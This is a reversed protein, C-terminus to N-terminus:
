ALRQNIEDLRRDREAASSATLTIHGLKRGPRESKGYDHMGEFEGSPMRGILNKMGAHALAAPNGLPMGSVARMHNEFQSADTGEITWHGSNHVRPAFENALLRDGVVFLELAVTGVYDCHELLRRGFDGALPELAEDQLPAISTDLIGNSHTNRTLPYLAIDGDVSRTAIISVEYDFAVWAEAILAQGGLESWAAEVDAADRVVFQGKGDYGFRRTKLVFPLGLDQTAAQLDELSNIARYAPLPIDLTEFLRKESLRDQATELADPPPYVPTADSISRVASVPVNEFEYTIIDVRGALENIASEDDYDAKVLEGQSAAPPNDSPDLFICTIGLKQAAEGLMM